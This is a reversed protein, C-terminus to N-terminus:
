EDSWVEEFLYLGRYYAGLMSDVDDLAYSSLALWILAHLKKVDLLRDAGLIKEFIKETKKYSNTGLKLEINNDDVYLEFNRQNFQDYDGIASYYVKGFDYLPDGYIQKKAFYGRPDIFVVRHTKREILTNSFTPDGHIVSFSKSKSVSKALKDIDNSHKPHLLNRVRRGNVFLYEDDLVLPRIKEIRKKTKDIYVDDCEKEDFESSGLQHLELLSNLINEVVEEKSIEKEDIMWPHYGDIRELTLPSLSYVKPIHSYNRASVFSYWNIEHKILHEFDKDRVKKIVKDGVIEIENFFRANTQQKKIENYAELTGIEYVDDIFLPKLSVNSDRLFRVFEGSAPVEPLEEPKGFFFFGMVGTKNSSEEKLLGNHYSWRCTFSRSLGIYNDLSPISVHATFLLDCWVVGFPKNGIMSRAKQIGSCTGKGDAKVLVYEFPPPYVAFYKELIDYKYDGIIYFKAKPFATKLHYLLPKGFISLLAKPKNQTLHKLRSGLGGAQVIVHEIEM